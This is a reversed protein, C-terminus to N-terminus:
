YYYKFDVLIDWEDPATEKKNLKVSNCILKPWSAQIMSLFKAFSTIDTGSFRVSASQTKSEKTEVISGSSLKWKGPPISCATAVEDVVRDYTFEVKEKNPDTSGARDPALSLIELMLENADTYDKINNELTVQARPLYLAFVLAPWLAALVPIIIYLLIPNKYIEKM